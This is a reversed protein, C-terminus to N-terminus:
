YIDLVLGVIKSPDKIKGPNWKFIEQITVKYENAIKSLTDGEKVTYTKKDIVVTNPMASLNLKLSSFIETSTEKTKKFLFSIGKEKVETFNLKIELSVSPITFAVTSRQGEKDERYYKELETQGMAVSKVLDQLFDQLVLTQTVLNESERIDAM